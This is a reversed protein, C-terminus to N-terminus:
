CIMGETITVFPCCRNDTFEEQGQVTKFELGGILFRIGLVDLECTRFQIGVAESLPNASLAFEQRM